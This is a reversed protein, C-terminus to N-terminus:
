CISARKCKQWAGEIVRPDPKAQLKGAALAAPIYNRWVADGVDLRGFAPAAGM